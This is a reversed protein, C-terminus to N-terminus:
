GRMHKFLSFSKHAKLQVHCRKQDVDVVNMGKKDLQSIDTPFNLQFSFTKKGRRYCTHLLLLKLELIAVTSSAVNQYKVILILKTEYEGELLQLLMKQSSVSKMRPLQFNQLSLAVFVVGGM